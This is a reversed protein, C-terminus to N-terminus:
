KWRGIAIYGLYSNSNQLSVARATFGSVLASGEVAGWSIAAGPTIAYPSVSPIDVFYEPFTFGVSASVFINGIQNNVAVSGSTNRRCILTGDPYRLATGNGNATQQVGNTLEKWEGWSSDHRSRSFTRGIHGSVNYAQVAIQSDRGSAGVCSVNWWVPLNGNGNELVPWSQANAQSDYGTYSKVTGIPQSNPTDAGLLPADTLVFGSGYIERMMANIKTNASRPTDGGVGSPPTGLEINQRAM